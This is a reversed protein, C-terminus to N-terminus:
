RPLTMVITAGPTAGDAPNTDDAPRTDDIWIGGGHAAVIKRCLSLGLGFHEHPDHEALTRRFPEFLM